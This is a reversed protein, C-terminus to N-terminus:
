NSASQRQSKKRVAAFYMAPLVALVGFGLACGGSTGSGAIIRGSTREVTGLDATYENGDTGTVSLSVLSDVSLNAPPAAEVTASVSDSKTIRAWNVASVSVAEDAMFSSSDVETGNILLKWARATIGTGELSIVYVAKNGASLRSMPEAEVTNGSENTIKIRNTLNLANNSPTNNNPTNNDTTNNDPTNNDPTNNDPTNNNPTDNNPTNSDPTNNDPTNNDPTQTITISLTVSASTGATDAAKAEVSYSGAAVNKGAVISFEASTDNLSQSSVLIDAAPTVSGASWTIKGSIDGSATLTTKASEGAKLTFTRPEGSITIKKVAPAPPVPKKMTVKVTISDSNGKKDSFTFVNEYVGDKANKDAEINVTITGKGTEANIDTSTVTFKVDNSVNGSVFTVPASGSYEASAKDNSGPQLTFEFTKASTVTFPEPDKRYTVDWSLAIEPADYDYANVLPINVRAKTGDQLKGLLKGDYKDNFKLVISTLARGGSDALAAELEENSFSKQEGTIEFTMWEPINVSYESDSRIYHEYIDMMEDYDASVTVTVLYDSNVENLNTDGSCIVYKAFDGSSPALHEPDPIVDVRLVTDFSTTTGVAYEAYRPNDISTVTATIEFNCAYADASDPFYGTIVFIDSSADSTIEKLKLFDSDPVFDWSVKFGSLQSWNDENDADQTRFIFLKVKPLRYKAMYNYGFYTEEADSYDEHLDPESYSEEDGTLRCQYDAAGACSVALLAVALALILLCLKRNM